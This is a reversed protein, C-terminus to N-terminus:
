FTKEKVTNLFNNTSELLDEAKEKTGSWLGDASKKGDKIIDKTKRSIDNRLKRGSKPAYLVAIVGGMAGGILIGTVLGRM